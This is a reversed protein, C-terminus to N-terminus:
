PPHPRLRGEIDRVVVSLPRTADVPTGWDFRTTKAFVERAADAGHSYPRARDREICVSLPAVLTFVHGSVRLRRTLDALQTRWYFNGDIVVDHGREFSRRAREALVANARLFEGLRGSEWFHEEDLIRDVSLYRASLQTGLRRAVTTKGVGLPGRIVVYQAM